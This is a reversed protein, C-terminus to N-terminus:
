PKTHKLTNLTYYADPHVLAEGAISRIGRAQLEYVYTPRLEDVNLVLSRESVDSITVDHKRNDIEEGGYASSYLYTYSSLTYSEPAAATVPDIAQPFTLKFGKPHAEM